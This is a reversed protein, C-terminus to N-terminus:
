PTEKEHDLDWLIAQAIQRLAQARAAKIAAPSTSWHQEEMADFFLDLVTEPNM